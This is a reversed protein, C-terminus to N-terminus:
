KKPSAAGAPAAATKPKAGTTLELYRRKVADYKANIEGLEKKKAAQADQQGKIDVENNKIDDQLKKPIPKTAYFEKEAALDKARKQADAIRKDIEKAAQEAQKLARERSDDIDKENSYTNLLAQNKRKEEKAQAEEEKKRKEDTERTAVQEPTPAADRKKVRTGQRSLEEMEKGLCEAPPTQTYYTKGKGDKCKFVRQQASASAAALVLLIGLVVIGSKLM